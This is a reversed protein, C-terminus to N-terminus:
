CMHHRTNQPPGEGPPPPGKEHRPHTSNHHSSGSTRDPARAHSLGWRPRHPRRRSTGCTLRPHPTLRPRRRQQSSQATRHKRATSSDPRAIAHRYINVRTTTRSRVAKTPSRWSRSRRQNGRKHYRYQRSYRRQHQVCGVSLLVGTFNWLLGRLPTSMEAILPFHSSQQAAIKPPMWHFSVLLVPRSEHVLTRVDCRDQVVFEAQLVHLEVRGREPAGVRVALRVHTVVADGLVLQRLVR